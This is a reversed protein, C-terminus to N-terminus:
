EVLNSGLFVTVKGARALVAGDSTTVPALPAGAILDSLGDGNLDGSALSLGVQEGASAGDIMADASALQIAGPWASRGERGFFLYIRGSSAGAYSALAVGVALDGAGDGNWDPLEVVACPCQDDDGKLFRM